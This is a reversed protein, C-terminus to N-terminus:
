NEASLQQYISRRWEERDTNSLYYTGNRYELQGSDKFNAWNDRAAQEMTEGPLLQADPMMKSLQSFKAFDIPGCREIFDAAQKLMQKRQSMKEGKQERIILQTRM